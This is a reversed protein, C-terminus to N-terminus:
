KLALAWFTQSGKQWLLDSSWRLNCLPNPLSWKKISTYLITPPGKDLMKSFLRGCFTNSICTSSLVTHIKYFCFWFSLSSYNFPTMLQNISIILYVYLYTIWVPIWLFCPKLSWIGPLLISEFLVDEWLFLPPMIFFMHMDLLLLTKQIVHLPLLSNRLSIIAIGMLLMRRVM